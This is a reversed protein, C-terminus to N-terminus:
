YDFKWGEETEFDRKIQYLVQDYDGKYGVAKLIAAGFVDFDDWERIIQEGQQEVFPTQQELLKRIAERLKEQEQSM